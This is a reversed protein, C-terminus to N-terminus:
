GKMMCSITKCLRIVFQGKPKTDLFSYFSVVSHVEVPHIDLIDAIVQMAYSSIGCSKEQIAQLVPLLASRNNGHEEVLAAIEDRLKERETVLM